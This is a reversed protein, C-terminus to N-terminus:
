FPLIGSLSDYWDELIDAAIILLIIIIVTPIVIFFVFLQVFCGRKPGTILGIINMLFAIIGSVGGLPTFLYLILTIVAFAPSEPNNVSVYVNPSVPNSNGPDRFPQQHQVPPPIPQSYSPIHAQSPNIISGDKSIWGGCYRCKIAEDPIVSKCYYCEM